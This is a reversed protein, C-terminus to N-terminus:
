QGRSGIGYIKTSNPTIYFTGYLVKKEMIKLQIWIVEINHPELDDRRYAHINEKVYVVVGGGVRGDNRDKRFAKQYNLLEISDDSSNNNLWTETFSLIDFDEYEAIILDLKPVLSQVNLHLFSVSTSFMECLSSGISSDDSSISHEDYNLPGPNLEIGGLILLIKIVFLIFAIQTIPDTFLSINREKFINCKSKSSYRCLNLIEKLFRKSYILYSFWIFSILLMADKKRNTFLMVYICFIEQLKLSNKVGRRLTLNFLGVRLRYQQIGIGM